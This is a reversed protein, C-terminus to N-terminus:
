EQKKTIIVKWAPSSCYHTAQSVTVTEGIAFAATNVTKIVIYERSGTHRGERENLYLTKLTM